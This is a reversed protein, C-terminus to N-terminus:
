HFYILRMMTPLDLRSIPCSRYVFGITDGIVFNRSARKSNLIAVNNKGNFRALVIKLGVPFLNMYYITFALERTFIFWTIYIYIKRKHSTRQILINEKYIIWQIFVFCRLLLLIYVYVNIFIINIEKSLGGWGWHHEM